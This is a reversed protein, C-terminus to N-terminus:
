GEYLIVGLVDMLQTAGKIPKGFYINDLKWTGDELKYVIKDEYSVSSQEEEKWVVYAIASHEGEQIVEKLFLKFNNRKLTKILKEQFSSKPNNKLYIAAAEQLNIELSSTKPLAEWGRKDKFVQALHKVQAEASNENKTTNYCSLAVFSVMLLCLTKLNM